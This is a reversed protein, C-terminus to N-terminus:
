AFLIVAQHFDHGRHVRYKSIYMSHPIYKDPNGFMSIKFGDRAWKASAKATELPQLNTDDCAHGVSLIASCVIVIKALMKVYACYRISDFREIYRESRNSGTM